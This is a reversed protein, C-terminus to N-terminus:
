KNIYNDNVFKVLYEEWDSAGKKDCFEDWEKVDVHLTEFELAIRSILDYTDMAGSSMNYLYNFCNETIVSATFGIQKLCKLNDRVINGIDDYNNVQEQLDNEEDISVTVIMRSERASKALSGSCMDYLEETDFIAVLEAHSNSEFYVKVM